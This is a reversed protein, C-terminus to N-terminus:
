IGHPKKNNKHLTTQEGHRIFILEFYPRYYYMDLRILEKYTHAFEGNLTLELRHHVDWGKFNDAKALAYNETKSIDADSKFFRRVNFLPDKSRLDKMRERHYDKMKPHNRYWNRQYENYDQIM